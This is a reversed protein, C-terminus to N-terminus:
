QAKIDNLLGMRYGPYYSLTAMDHSRLVSEYFWFEGDELYLGRQRLYLKVKNQNEESATNMLHGSIHFVLKDTDVTEGAVTCPASRSEEVVWEPPRADQHVDFLVSVKYGLCPVGSFPATLLEDGQCHGTVDHHPLKAMDSRSRIDVPLYWRIPRVKTFRRLMKAVHRTSFFYSGLMMTPFVVWYWGIAPYNYITEIWGDRMQPILLPLAITVAVFIVLHVSASLLKASFPVKRRAHEEESRLTESITVDNLDLWEDGHCHACQSASSQALYGCRACLFFCQAIRHEGTQSHEGMESLVTSMRRHAQVYARRDRRYRSMDRFMKQMAAHTVCTAGGAM